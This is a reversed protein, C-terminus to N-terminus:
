VGVWSATALVCGEVCADGFFVGFFLFEFAMLRAIISDSFLITFTLM